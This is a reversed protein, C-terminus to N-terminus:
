VLFKGLREYRFDRFDCYEALLDLMKVMQSFILVKHGEQRLKPLLKDLRCTIKAQDIFDIEGRVDGAPKCQSYSEVRM